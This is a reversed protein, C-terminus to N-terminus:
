GVATLSVLPGCIARGVVGLGAAVGRAWQWTHAWRWVAAGGPLLARATALPPAAACPYGQRQGAVALLEPRQRRQHHGGQPGEVGEGVFGEADVERYRRGSVRARRGATATSGRGHRGSLM